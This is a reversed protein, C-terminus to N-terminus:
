ARPGRRAGAVPWSQAGGGAARRPSRRGAQFTRGLLPGTGLVQFLEASASLGPVLRLADGTRELTAGESKYAAVSSSGRSARGFTCSSRITGTVRCGSCAWRRRARSRCPISCCRGSSASSPRPAAPAWRWRSCALLTYTPRSAFRRASYRLDIIWSELMPGGSRMRSAGPEFGTWGRWWSRRLLAPVSGLIQRWLWLRAATRGHRSTRDAYEGALDALVEDREAYPLLSRFLRAAPGRLAAAVPDVSTACTTERGHLRM